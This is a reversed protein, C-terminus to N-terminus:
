QRNHFRQQLTNVMTQLTQESLETLDSENSINDQLIEQLTTIQGVLKGKTTGERIGQARGQELGQELGKELGQQHAYRLTSEHDRIAKERQDYMLRDRTNERIAKLTQIAIEFEAGKLLKKLREPEYLHGKLFFFVWRELDSCTSMAAEDLNYKPLEVIHIQLGNELKRGSVQEILEFRHIRQGEQQFVECYVLCVSIAPALKTYDEGRSLQDVYMSCVYYALRPLLNSTGFIQMEVNLFRGRCDRARIDLVIQKADEFEQYNFPNLISVSEIPDPFELISNLLAVLVLSNQPDGFIKKFAFDVIPRIGLPM